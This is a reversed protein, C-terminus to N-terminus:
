GRGAGGRGIHACNRGIAGAADRDPDSVWSSWTVREPPPCEHRIAPANRWVTTVVAPV